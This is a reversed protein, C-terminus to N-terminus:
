IYFSDALSTGAITTLLQRLELPEIAPALRRKPLVASVATACSRALIRNVVSAVAASLACSFACRMFSGEPEILSGLELPTFSARKGWARFLLRSSGPTLLLLECKVVAPREAPITPMRAHPPAIAYCRAIM